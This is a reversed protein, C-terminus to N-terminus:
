KKKFLLFYAVLAIGGYILWNTKKAGGTETTEETSVETERAIEKAASIDAPPATDYPQSVTGGGFSPGGPIVPMPGLNVPSTQEGGQFEIDTVVASSTMPAADTISGLLTNM